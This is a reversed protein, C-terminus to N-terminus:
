GVQSFLGSSIAINEATEMKDGTLVWIKMQALRLSTLTPKLGEQLKDEVASGGLLVLNSELKSLFDAYAEKKSEPDMECIERYFSEFHAVEAESLVRVAMLLGRLGQRAYEEIDEVVRDRIACLSTSSNYINSDLRSLISQDAGKCM